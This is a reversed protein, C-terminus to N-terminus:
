PTFGAGLTWNGAEVDNSQLVTTSGDVRNDAAAALARTLTTGDPLGAAGSRAAAIASRELQTKALQVRGLDVSLSCIGLFTTMAVLFYVLAIGNRSRHGLNRTNM